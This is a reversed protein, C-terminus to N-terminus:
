GKNKTSQNRDARKRLHKKVIGALSRAPIEDIPTVTEWDLAARVVAKLGIPGRVVVPKPSDARRARREYALRDLRLPVRRNAIPARAVHEGRVIELGIPDSSDWTSFRVEYAGSELRILSWKLSSRRRWWAAFETTTTRWVLSEGTLAEAIARPLEPIRALRREPHGYLFAPEGADIRARLVSRFHDIVIRGPSKVGADFFLGECIPHIPVQLVTSFRGDFYPYFPFDDYGLQFESSYLYGLDEVVRGLGENWRGHPAAFGSVRIGAGTLLDHARELNRRNAREDRYVHHYHGHSQSDRGALDALVDKDKGYANTCIYHTTCDEIPKRSQAFRRYDDPNPEDLDVRFNFASRYPYPYAAIRAWVGGGAKVHERIADLLGRRIAAKSRRSVRETVDIGGIRRRVTAGERDVIAAFPDVRKGKRLMDIDILTHRSGAIARVCSASARRADHLVFRGRHFSFPNAETLREYAIGEQALILELGPPTKWLLLPLEPLEREYTM